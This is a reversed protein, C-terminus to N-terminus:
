TGQSMDQGQDKMLCCWVTEKPQGELWAPTWEDLRTQSRGTWLGINNAPAARSSQKDVNSNAQTKWAKQKGVVLWLTLCLKM